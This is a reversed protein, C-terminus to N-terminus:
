NDNESFEMEIGMYNLMEWAKLREDQNSSKSGYIIISQIVQDSVGADKLKIIDDVTTFRISKIERGYVVPQADKMFSGQEVVIRITLDSIGAKKLYLIEKVTFNCTEFTKERIISQITEDSIGSKKLSVLDEASICFGNNVSIFFIFVFWIFFIHKREM